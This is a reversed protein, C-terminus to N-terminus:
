DSEYTIRNAKRSSIKSTSETQNDEKEEVNLCFRYADINQKMRENEEEFIKRYKEKINGKLMKDNFSIIKSMREIETKMQYQEKTSFRTM